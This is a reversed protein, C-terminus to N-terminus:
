ILAQFHFVLFIHRKCYIIFKYGEKFSSMRFLNKLLLDKSSLNLRTGVLSKCRLNQNLNKNENEWCFHNRFSQLFFCIFRFHSVVNVFFYRYLEKIIATKVLLCFLLYVIKRHLGRVNTVQLQLPVRWFYVICM